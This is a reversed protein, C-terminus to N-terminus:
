FAGRLALSAAGPALGPVLRVGTAPGSGNASSGGLFFLVAGGAVLAGGAVFAVSSATADTLSVGRDSTARAYSTCSTPSVCEAKASSWKSGAILGFVTGVGLGAVGAGGVVLGVTRLPFPPPPPPPPPPSPSPPAEPPPPAPPPTGLVVSVRRGKEGEKVVLTQSVPPQDEVEFTFAHEGPDVAVATGDLKETLRKGDVSVKADGIDGGSADKVDFVLTPQAQELEDLRKTCDDRVIRPCHPDGCLRLEDRAQSLKGERRHTQAGTNADVCQAKTVDASAAAPALWVALALLVRTKV